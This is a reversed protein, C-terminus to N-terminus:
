DVQSPSMGFKDKFARSFYKESGFGVKSAVEYVMGERNKLMAMARDLRYDRVFDTVNQDTIAKLKRHLQVRSILMKQALEEVGISEDPLHQEVMFTFRRLFERDPATLFTAEDDANPTLASASLQGYRLRLRRRTEVLNDMRALLEDTNFPKTLYDDAGTRLGKIKADIASKATLLIIPIHATLENNKLEDCVAYGDKLPMMLDSIVLDPVLELAKQVGEEGNSAEVVQWAHAICQKIFDRLEANDEVLLAVPREATGRAANKLIFDAVEPQRTDAVPASESSGEAMPVSFTFVSGKGVESEVMLSGKMLEALEKSLALGIGTGEGARTHSGDVQYFRDFVKDLAEPPIGMGTDAVRIEVSSPNQVRGANVIRLDVNVKGGEPTFKLANSILNNLVLEVKNSDFLFPPVDGPVQLSLHIGRQEALPLFSRYVERVTETVDAQRLDLGMSGSELKAMDLLQGVLAMLRHSNHEIHRANEQIEPDQTKALIRRAPELMLSLPTRFEHTINSFFNTKMQEVAKVRETERHEFALQERLKVRRIQFQYAQWGAWLLLLFYLLYALNSRYWPPSVVVVIPYEAEQWAGEGNSGQVRFAYRGPALHTFHAFRTGGTEVWDADLGVLRYRYRNQTPDTFDLAAFEFSLNNQDYSLHMERLRELPADLLQKPVMEHNVEIGVVFVPPPTTDSRLEEPFFHNLGNVGGFLLEGNASKSFAQTNFENDQLGKAATFTTVERWGGGVSPSIPDGGGNSPAPPLNIKVLGRNTSCWLSVPTTAPNENGPLIGYVVMDPLGDATTLHRVQGSRLDLRNIGGGKTGVWLVDSPYAPDPLLCAISSSNLGNPNKPDAQLLQFDFFQGNPVCKVLGRQTGVWLVGDGDEALAFARVSSANEGFLAAYDFYDFRTTQPNFRVLQCNSGTMWLHGVKSRLIRAYVYSSFRFPYVRSVGSKPDEYWLEAMGNEQDGRGLLWIPGDPQIWMDLLRTSKEPFTREAGVKGSVPDYPFIANVIKCFYRGETDRWLGWISTGAAGTHFAQKRPNIKRLGYGQTGVWLNGNRDTETTTIDADVSWDPKSFDLDEGPSLLWLQKNIGVWTMGDAARKVMLWRVKLGPPFDLWNAQGNRIRLLRSSFTLWREITKDDAIPQLFARGLEVRYIKKNSYVLLGGDPVADVALLSEEHDPDNPQPSELSFRSIQTLHSLDQEAPLQASWAAPIAIRIVVSSKQLLYISGDSAERIAYVDFSTIQGSLGFDLAFHHFRGTRRDYLDMGKSETSVWLWGRSDEFIATVTNEALSYPDFPDNTFIKFNYGDYRNLGDKTAVWLFGDRTQLIDYIMGQSLGQEITLSEFQISQAVGVCPLALWLLLTFLRSFPSSLLLM